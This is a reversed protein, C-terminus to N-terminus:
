ITFLVFSHGAEFIHVTDKSHRVLYFLDYLSRECMHSNFMTTYVIIRSAYIKSTNILYVFTRNGNLIYVVTRRAHMIYVIICTSYLRSKKNCSNYLSQGVANIM